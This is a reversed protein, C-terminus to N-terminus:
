RIRSESLTIEVTKGSLVNVKTDSMSEQQDWFPDVGYHIPWVGPLGKEQDPTRRFSLALGIFSITKGSDNLVKITLGRLWDDDDALMKGIELLGGKARVLTIKVPPDSDPKRELRRDQLREQARNSLPIDPSSGAGTRQSSIIAAVVTTIFM